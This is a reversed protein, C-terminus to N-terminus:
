GTLAPVAFRADGTAWRTLAPIGAAVAADVSARAALLPAVIAALAWATLGLNAALARLHLCRGAALGGIRPWRLDLWDSARAALHRFVAFAHTRRALKLDPALACGNPDLRPLRDVRIQGHGSSRADHEDRRCWSTQWALLRYNPNDASSGQAAISMRIAAHPM